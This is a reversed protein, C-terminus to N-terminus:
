RLQLAAAHADHVVVGLAHDGGHLRRSRAQEDDGARGSPGPPGPVFVLGLLAIWAAIRLRREIRRAMRRWREAPTGPAGPQRFAQTRRQAAAPMM